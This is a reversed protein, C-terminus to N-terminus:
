RWWVSVIWYFYVNNGGNQRTQEQLNSVFLVFFFFFVCFLALKHSTTLLSHGIFGMYGKCVVIRNNMEFPTRLLREKKEELRYIGSREPFTKWARLISRVNLVIHLCTQRDLSMGYYRVTLAVSFFNLFHTRRCISIFWTSTLTPPLMLVVVRPLYFPSNKAVM